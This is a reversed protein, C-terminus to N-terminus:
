QLVTAVGPLWEFCLYECTRWDTSKTIGIMRAKFSDGIMSDKFSGM